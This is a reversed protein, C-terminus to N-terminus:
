ENAVGRPVDEPNLSLNMVRWEDQEKVITMTVPASEGSTATIKGSVTAVSGERSRQDFAVHSPTTLIPYKKLFDVFAQPPVTQKFQSSTLNYAEELQQASLHDLFSKAIKTPKQTALMAGVIAIAAIVAIVAVFILFYKLVKNKKKPPTDKMGAYPPPVNTM